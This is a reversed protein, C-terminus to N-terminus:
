QVSYLILMRIINSVLCLMVARNKLRKLTKVSIYM